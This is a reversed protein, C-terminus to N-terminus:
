EESDEGIDINILVAAHLPGSRRYFLSQLNKDQLNKAIYGEKCELLLENVFFELRWGGLHDNKSDKLDINNVIDRYSILANKTKFKSILKESPVVRCGVENNTANEQEGFPVSVSLPLENANYFMHYVPITTQASYNRIAEWQDDQVKMARYKSSEDFSFVRTKFADSFADLGELDPLGYLRIQDEEKTIENPYMRKSQLLGVKSKILRNGKRFFIIIAIDAIEWVYYHRGSGTFIADLRVSWTSDFKKPYAYDQLSGIFLEDLTPEKTNPIKSIRNSVSENTEKFISYLYSKIDQPINM